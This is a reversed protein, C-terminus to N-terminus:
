GWITGDQVCDVLRGVWLYPVVLNAEITLINRGEQGNSKEM